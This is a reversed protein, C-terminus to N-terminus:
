FLEKGPLPLKQRRSIVKAFLNLDPDVSSQDQDAEFDYKQFNIKFFFGASSPLLMSLIDLMCLTFPFRLDLLLHTQHSLCKCVFLKLALKILIPQSNLINNIFSIKM